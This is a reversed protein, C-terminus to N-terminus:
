KFTWTGFNEPELFGNVVQSWSTGGDGPKRFRCLNGYLTTGAAPVTMDLSAWPIALEVSWYDQGRSAAVEYEPNWTLDYGGGAPAWGDWRVGNPNIIIHYNPFGSPDASLFLEVANGAWVDSDRTSGVVLMKDMNPEQCRWAVYLNEDDYTMWAEGLAVAETKGTQFMPLFPGLVSFKQWTDRGLRGDIVPPNDSAGRRLVEASRKILSNAIEEERRAYVKAMVEQMDFGLPAGRALKERASIVAERLGEPMDKSEWWNMKETYLWAYEDATHLAYYINHEARLKQEEPTMYSEIYKRGRRNFLQDAYLGHSCQVQARYKRRNEPAILGLGIQTIDHYAKYFEFTDAYYFSAENGDTIVADPSAVDLWGNIFAPYLSYYQDALRAQQVEPDSVQAVHIFYSMMFFSHIVPAPLYEQIKAMFQAGRQRVRASYEAFSKEGARVQSPYHWPNFGYPEADFAVGKCRGVQAAQAVLGVNHLVAEWDEDSFWDVESKALMLIFNDTFKGWEIQELAELEAAWKDQGWEEDWKKNTFFVNSMPRLDMIIGDFPEKEMDRIQEVVEVPRPFDWGCKILKKQLAQASAASGVRV